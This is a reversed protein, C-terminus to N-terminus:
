VWLDVTESGRRGRQTQTRPFCRHTLAPIWLCLVGNTQKDWVTSTKDQQTKVRVGMIWGSRQSIVCSGDVVWVSWFTFSSGVKSYKYTKSSLMLRSNVDGWVYKYMNLHMVRKIYMNIYKCTYGTYVTVYQMLLAQTSSQHIKFNQVAMSWMRECYMEACTITARCSWSLSRTNVTLIM